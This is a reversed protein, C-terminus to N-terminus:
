LRVCSLSRIAKQNIIEERAIHWTLENFVVSTEPMMETEMKLATIFSHTWVTGCIYWLLLRIRRIMARINAVSITGSVDTTKLL